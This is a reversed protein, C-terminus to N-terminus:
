TAETMDSEKRSYVAAQWAGRDMPNELRSSQSPNGHGGELADKQGPSQVLMEGAKVPLNKVVLVVQSAPGPDRAKFRARYSKPYMVVQPCIVNGRLGEIEEDTLHPLFPLWRVLYSHPHSVNNVHPLTGLVACAM